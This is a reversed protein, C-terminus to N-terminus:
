GILESVQFCNGLLEVTASPDPTFVRSFTYAGAMPRAYVELQNLHLNVIWVEPIGAKAYLPLKIERDKELTSDSVEVVLMVDSAGPLRDAYFNDTPRLLAIDPEPESFDNLRVPGQVSTIVQDGLMRNFMRSMRNVCAFHRSGVPSMVLIDGYILEVREEATLIGADAMQHYETTTIMRRHEKLQGSM